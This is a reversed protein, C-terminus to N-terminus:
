QQQTPFGTSGEIVDTAIKQLGRLGYNRKKFAAVQGTTDPDFLAVLAASLDAALEVLLKSLTGPEADQLSGFATMADSLAGFLDPPPDSQFMWVNGDGPEVKFPAFDLGVTVSTRTVEKKPAAM